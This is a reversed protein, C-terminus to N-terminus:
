GIKLDKEKRSGAGIGALGGFLAILVDWITPETRALLESQADNLPTFSFCITSTLISILIAIGLTKLSKQLLEFDNVGAALGIGMIPGMLPSILMAGIIVATSNVNLGVSAVFFAYILIWLNAGKFEVNKKIYEITEIDDEKGENL